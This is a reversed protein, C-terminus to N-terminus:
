WNKDELRVELPIPAGIPEALSAATSELATAIRDLAWAIREVVPEVTDVKINIKIPPEPTEQQAETM